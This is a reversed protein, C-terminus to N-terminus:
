LFSTLRVNLDFNELAGQEPRYFIFWGELPNFKLLDGKLTFKIKYIDFFDFTMSGYGGCSLTLFVKEFNFKSAEPASNKSDYLGGEYGTGWSIDFDLEGDIQIYSPVDVITGALNASM